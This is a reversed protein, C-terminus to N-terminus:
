IPSFSLARWAASLKLLKLGVSGLRLASLFLNSYVRTVLSAVTQAGLDSSEAIHAAFVNRAGHGPNWGCGFQRRLNLWFADVQYAATALYLLTSGSTIFVM